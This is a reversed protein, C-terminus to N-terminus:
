FNGKKLEILIFVLPKSGQRLSFRRIIEEPLYYERATRPHKFYWIEKGEQKEKILDPHKLMWNEFFEIKLFKIFEPNMEESHDWIQTYYLLYRDERSIHYEKSIPRLLEMKVADLELVDDLLNKNFRGGETLFASFMITAGSKGEIEGKQFIEAHRYEHLLSSIFDGETKLFKKDFSPPFVCISIPVEKKGYETLPPIKHIATMFDDPKFHYNYKKELEKPEGYEIVTIYDPKGVKKVIQEIYKERLQPYKLTEAFSITQQDWLFWGILGVFIVAVAVIIWFSSKEFFRVKRHKKEKIQQLKIKRREKRTLRVERKL